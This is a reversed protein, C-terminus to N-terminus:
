FLIMEGFTQAPEPATKIPAIPEISTTVIKQSFSLDSVQESKLSSGVKYSALTSKAINNLANKFLENTPAAKHASKEPTKITFEIVRDKKNRTTDEFFQTKAPTTKKPPSAKKSNKKVSKKPSNTAPTAKKQATAPAPAAAKEPKVILTEEFGQYATLFEEKCNNIKKVLNPDKCQKISHKIHKDMELRLLKYYNKTNTKDKFKLLLDEYRRLLFSSYESPNNKLTAILKDLYFKSLFENNEGLRIKWIKYKNRLSLIELLKEDNEADKGGYDRKDFIHFVKAVKQLFYMDDEDKYKAVVTKINNTTQEDLSTYKELLKLIAVKKGDTEDKIITLIFELNYDKDKTFKATLAYSGEVVDYIYKNANILESLISKEIQYNGEGTFKGLLNNNVIEERQQIKYYAIDLDTDFIEGTFTNKWTPKIEPSLEQKQLEM